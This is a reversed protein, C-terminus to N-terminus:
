LGRDAGKTEAFPDDAIVAEGERVRVTTADQVSALQRGQVRVGRGDFESVWAEVEAGITTREGRLCSSRPIV